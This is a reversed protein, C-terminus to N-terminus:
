NEIKKRNKNIAKQIDEYTCLGVEVPNKAETIPERYTGDKIADITSKTSGILKAIQSDKLENGYKKILWYIAYPKEQRLSIPTYKSGSTKTKHEPFNNKLLQLKEKFNKQCRDIEEQTIQGSDIPNYGQIGTAVDGDAIGQVELLHMDCFEAIQEFSLSTNEILWIATAKPMLPRNM